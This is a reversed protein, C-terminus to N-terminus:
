QQYHVKKLDSQRFEKPTIGFKKKFVNSFYAQSSFNLIQSIESLPKNTYALLNKSEELKCRTIFYGPSFGLTSRFRRELQSVSLGIYDAVDKIKIPRYISERIFRLCQSLDKPADSSFVAKQTRETFDLYMTDLVENIKSATLANEVRQIYFDSLQYASSLELGGEIAARTVLTIICIMQNKLQRLGSSALTGVHMEPSAIMRHAEKVNGNKVYSLYKQEFEYALQFSKSKDYDSAFEINQSNIKDLLLKNSLFADNVSSDIERNLFFCLQHLISKFHSLTYGQTRSLYIMLNEKESSEVSHRKMIEHLLFIDVSVMAVPGLLLLISHDYDFVGGFLLNEPTQHLFVTQERSLFFEKLPLALDFTVEPYKWICNGQHYIQLPYPHTQCFIDCFDILGKM